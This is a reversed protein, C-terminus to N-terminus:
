AVEGKTGAGTESKEKETLRNLLDRKGANISKKTSLYRRRRGMGQTLYSM